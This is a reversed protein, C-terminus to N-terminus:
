SKGQSCNAADIAIALMLAVIEDEPNAIDIVYTDGWHFLEKSIHVVPSCGAYVDYDWAMFDGECRWGNYDLDYKPRFLTFRKQISGYAIGGIEIEFTPLFFSFQQRILGIENGQVDQVHIHHLLSFIENKVFYKPNGAEDYIDYTDTWSFVRQKILLKMKTEKRQVM